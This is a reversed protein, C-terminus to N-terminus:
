YGLVKRLEISTEYGNQSVTHVATEIFYKGDFKGFGTVQVTVGQVLVHDGVLTFSAKQAEKNRQRIVNRALRVAEAENAVRENIKLVPGTKGPIHFVGKITKKKVTDTYSVECSAYAVGMTSLDFSYSKIDSVGRRLERVPTMGEYKRDDFIVLQDSTVKLTAGEKEALENLFSLDTQQTQDVRDYSIDDIEFLLGLGAKEAINAAIQSLTVKEWARTIEETKIKSNAPVSTAQITLVDPPGSFSVADIQFTGCPLSFLDGERYWNHLLIDARIRDGENPMWPDKWKGEFDALIIQLDDAKGTGNDTYSMSVFFPAIDQSINVGEYTIKAQARRSISM